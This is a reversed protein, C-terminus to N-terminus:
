GEKTLRTELRTVEDVYQDLEKPYAAGTLILQVQSQRAQNILSALEEM